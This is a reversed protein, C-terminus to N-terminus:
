AHDEGGVRINRIEMALEKPVAVSVLYTQNKKGGSLKVVPYHGCAEGARNLCLVQQGPEPLPLFEYPLQVLASEKGYTMDVLFIALGPCQAVCLGCGICRDFDIAPTGNLDPLVQIAKQPCARSCPNCPIEQFCEAIAVPGQALRSEPPFVRDLDEKTPIGDQILM